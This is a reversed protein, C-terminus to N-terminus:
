NKIINFTKNLFLFLKLLTKNNFISILIKEVKSYGSFNSIPYIKFRSKKTESIVNLFEDYKKKSKLMRVLAFFLYSEQRERLRNKALFYYPSTEHLKSIIDNFTFSASIMDKIMKNVHEETKTKVTSSDNIFYNYITNNIIVAKNVKQLLESTFLGDEAYVGVKFLLDGIVSRKAIYWWPGNNYNYEALLKLGSEYEAHISIKEFKNVEERSSTRRVQFGLFDLNNKKSFIVISKLYGKSLYDDSDIFYIYEGKAAALGKNRAVSQGSNKQNIIQINNYQSAYQLAVKLSNDNSGDNILIVEFENLSFDQEYISNLCKPLLNEVDYVPIIISLLCSM